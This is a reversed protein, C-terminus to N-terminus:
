KSVCVLSFCWHHVHTSSLPEMDGIDVGSLYNDVQLIRWSDSSITCADAYNVTDDYTVWIFVVKVVKYSAVM